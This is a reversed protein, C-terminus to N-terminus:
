RPSHREDRALRILMEAGLPLEFGFQQLEIARALAVRQRRGLKDDLLSEGDLRPEDRKKACAQDAIACLHSVIGPSIEALMPLIEKRVKVRLYHTNENSPDSSFALRHRALHALIDARRARAMPRLMSGDRPSLVGLGLLGAGRLLRLLVTEARDDAHHATAIISCGLEKARAMLAQYREQRARAQLNSGHPVDIKTRSFEVGLEEALKAVIDLERGAEPRLGHDVGHARLGVGFRPALRSLVHLMATSDGGGSVALL